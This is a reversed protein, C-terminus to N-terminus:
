KNILDDPCISTIAAIFNYGICVCHVIENPHLAKQHGSISIYFPGVVDQISDTLRTAIRPSRAGHVAQMAQM